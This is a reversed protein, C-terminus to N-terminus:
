GLESRIAEAISEALANEAITFQAEMQGMGAKAQVVKTQAEQDPGPLGRLVRRMEGFSPPNPANM